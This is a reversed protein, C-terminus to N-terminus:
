WLLLEVCFVRQLAQPRPVERSAPRAPALLLEDSHAQPGVEQWRAGRQERQSDAQQSVALQPADLLPRALHQQAFQLVPAFQREQQEFMVLLFDRGWALRCDRAPERCSAPTATPRVVDRGASAAGAAQVLGSAYAASLRGPRFRRGM